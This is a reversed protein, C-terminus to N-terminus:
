ERAYLFRQDDAAIVCLIALRSDRVDHYGCVHFIRGAHDIGEAGM